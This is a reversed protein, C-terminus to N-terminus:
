GFFRNIRLKIKTLINTFYEKPYSVIYAVRNNHVLENKCFEDLIKIKKDQLPLSYNYNSYQDFKDMLLILFLARKKQNLFNVKSLSGDHKRYVSEIDSLYRVEGKLSLVLQIAWDMNLVGIFQDYIKNVDFNNRFMMTQTHIFWNNIIDETTFCDENILNNNSKIYENKSLVNTSHFTLEVISNLEMYEAQKQLKDKSVWYDDGECVAIYKGKAKDILVKLPKIGKKFTNEKEYIPHIIKPYKQYYRDIISATKDNSADDRIIIEYKYTTEQMLFSVIANEIYKEHNYASCVVSIKVDDDDTWNSIIEKESKLSVNNIDFMIM